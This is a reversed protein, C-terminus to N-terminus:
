VRTYSVAEEEDNVRDILEQRSHVGLKRYLRSSHTAVTNASIYLTAAIKKVSYGLSLYYLIDTERETLGGAEAMRKCRGRRGAALAEADPPLDRLTEEPYAEQPSSAPSSAVASSSLAPESAGDAFYRLLFGLLVVLLVGAVASSLPVAVEEPAVSLTGFVPPMVVYCLLDSAIEVLLFLLGFAAIPAVSDQYYLMVLTLFIFIRLTRLLVTLAALHGADSMVGPAAMAALLGLCFATM